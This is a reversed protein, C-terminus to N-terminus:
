VNWRRVVFRIQGRAGPIKERTFPIPVILAGPHSEDVTLPTWPSAVKGDAQWDYRVQWPEDAEAPPMLEVVVSDRFVYGGEFHDNVWLKRDIEYDPVRIGLTLSYALTPRSPDVKGHRSLFVTSVYLPIPKGQAALYQAHTLCAVSDEESVRRTLYWLKGRPSAMLELQYLANVTKGGAAEEVAPPLTLHEVDVWVDVRIDGFLFRTLNQYAEESNVIGFHGSHARYVFAKAIPSTPPLPKGGRTGCLWANEIRVLGDSGHGAFARSLGAAAEYDLRNTGILCFVKDAPISEEPLWDVRGDKALNTDLGLYEAMRPRSFNTLEMKTLWSPVNIGGLDIGNHPTAYTFFKDVSRRSQHPDCNPNQLFTRCVLGGMSHAVLYCKFEDPSAYEGRAVARERIRAILKSLGLGFETIPPTEGEGLLTSASDYYRYVVISRRGIGQTWNDDDVIDAGDVFVDRYGFDKALRVVPSEFIFKRPPRNREPTARYVTSGINFGCFPDATTEDIESRLMAFGRVYIIPHLAAPNVDLPAFVDTAM